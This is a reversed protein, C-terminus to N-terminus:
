KKRQRDGAIDRESDRGRMRERERVGREGERERRERDM